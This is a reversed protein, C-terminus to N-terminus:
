EDKLLDLQAEARILEERLTHLQSNQQGIRQDRQTLAANLLEKVDELSGVLGQPKLKDKGPPFQQAYAREESYKDYPETWVFHSDKQQQNQM